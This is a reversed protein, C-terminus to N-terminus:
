MGAREAKRLADAAMSKILPSGTEVDPLKGVVKWGTRSRSEDWSDHEVDSPDIPEVRYVAKKGGLEEARMAYGLALSPDASAYAHEGTNEGDDTAATVNTAGTLSQPLIHDGINFPRNTGHWFDLNNRGM